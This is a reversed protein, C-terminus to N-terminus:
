SKYERVLEQLAKRADGQWIGGHYCILREIDYALLREVSRVAEELDAAYQPNAIILKGQEIVVADAAILTRMAPVYLSLHGITHGPTAVVEIGGCWPLKDGYVVTRDVPAPEISQLFRIFQQAHPKAEEPLEDFTSEAQELRLAKRAGEVYPAELEHAIVEMGPNARKLEALSGIHDMDHHTVILRTISQLKVGYRGAAQAILPVFGPYGCDVLITERGDRLLVPSIAQREGNFEFEIHLVYLNMGRGKGQIFTKSGDVKM